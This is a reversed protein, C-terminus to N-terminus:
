LELLALELQHPLCHFDVIYPLQKRLLTSPGSKKGLNKSADDSGFAVLKTECNAGAEKFTATIGGKVGVINENFFM